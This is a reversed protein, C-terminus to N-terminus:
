GHIVRVVMAREEEEESGDEMRRRNGIRDKSLSGKRPSTPSVAQVSKGPRHASTPLSRLTSNSFLLIKLMLMSFFFLFGSGRSVHYRRSLFVPLNLLVNLGGSFELTSLILAERTSPNESDGYRYFILFILTRNLGYSNIIWNFPPIGMVRRIWTSLKANTRTNPEVTQGYDKPHDM